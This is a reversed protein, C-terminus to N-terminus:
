GKRVFASVRDMFNQSLKIEEDTFNQHYPNGFIYQVEDLHTTGVWEAAPTSAPRFELKYFFVRNGKLSAIDANFVTNCSTMFDGIIDSIMKLYGVSERNKSNKKYYDIIESSNSLGMFHVMARTLALARMKSMVKADNGYTGVYQTLAFFIMFAGEDKTIGILIDKDKRFQGERYLEVSSNPLYEDNVRPYLEFINSGSLVKQASILDEPTKSKLCKVVSQPNNKLTKNENSCAIVSAITQSNEFLRANNDLFFPHIMSGGLIIARRFLDQSLPSVMLSSISFAGASAGMLSINGPDGNFYKANNKIWKIAMIKDFEGMNGNAEETYALFYGFVGLRYNLSAVVLDGRSALHSGDHWTTSSSGSVFAGPHLFIIIPRLGHTPESKPAWINLYLCDESMNTTNPEFYHSQSEFQFCPPGVDAANYVDTWRKKPVPKAFRLEGVPPEAYPIGLYAEVDDELSSVGQIPGSETNIVIDSSVAKLICIVILYYMKLFDQM